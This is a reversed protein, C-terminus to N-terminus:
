SPNMRLLLSTARAITQPQKPVPTKSAHPPSSLEEPSVGSAVALEEDPPLLPVVLGSPEFLPGAITALL